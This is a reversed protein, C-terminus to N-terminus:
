KAGAEAAWERIAEALAAITYDAPSVVVEFGRQRATAATIPGIVAAKQGPAITGMLACFNNVTSSSTFTVLDIMALRRRLSDIGDPHPVITRYAPAVLVEAAGNAALLRPLADRAVQARPILFRAGRIRAAGIAGIIAEARYEAPVAAAELGYNTLKAATAPGIAAVHTSRAADPERGLAKLRAMFADVGTASTFILWDFSDLRAIARDLLAYDDPPAIEITPFEIVEAGMARLMTAFRAAGAGRARTVVIIRGRLPMASKLQASHSTM